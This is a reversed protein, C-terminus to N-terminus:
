EEPGFKVDEAADALANARRVEADTLLQAAVPAPVLALLLDAAIRAAELAAAPSM